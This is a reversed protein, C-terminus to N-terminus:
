WIPLIGFLRVERGRKYSALIEICKVEIVCAAREDFRHHNEVMLNNRQVYIDVVVRRGEAAVLRTQFLNRFTYLYRIYFFTWWKFKIGSASM